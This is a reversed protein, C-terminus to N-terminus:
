RVLIYLSVATVGDTHVDSGPVIAWSVALYRHGLSTCPITSSTKSVLVSSGGDGASSSILDIWVFSWLRLSSIIASPSSLHTRCVNSRQLRYSFSAWYAPPLRNLPYRWRCDAEKQSPCRLRTLSDMARRRINGRYTLRTLISGSVSHYQSTCAPAPTTKWFM